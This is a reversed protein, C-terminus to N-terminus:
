NDQMINDKGVNKKGWARGGKVIVININIIWNEQSILSVELKPNENDNNFYM